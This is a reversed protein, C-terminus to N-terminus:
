RSTVGDRRRVGLMGIVGFAGLILSTPEPGFHFGFPIEEPGTPGAVRFVGVFAGGLGGGITLRAFHFDNQPGDDTVDFWSVNDDGLRGSTIATSGPTTIWSDIELLKFVPFFVPNPPAIDSGLPPAVNFIGYSLVRADDIRLIDADSTLYFDRVLYHDPPGDPSAVEEPTVRRVRESRYTVTAADLRPTLLCVVAILMPFPKLM